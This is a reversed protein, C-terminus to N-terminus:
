SRPAYRTPSPLRDAARGGRASDSVAMKTLEFTAAPDDASHQGAVVMVYRLLFGGILALISACATVFRPRPAHRALFQLLLPAAIGGGAVGWRAIQGTRGERLPRGIIAGLNRRLALLLGLEAVLALRELQELRALTEHGTRRGLVLALTIAATANSIASVLFLPGLLLANRTWLPVATAALLVGTYGSVAFGFLSGVAGITRAPLWRLIRALLATRGLLGDEAAQILASLGCFGGFVTLAWTGVSMPSRLKVVRLMHLFRQPRKLDLILLVPSPLLATLSLYRGARTIPRAQPGGVLEAISALVYSAGAIGGLFFYSIILWKWHPKHIPPVGYYDVRTEDAASRGGGRRPEWNRQYSLSM